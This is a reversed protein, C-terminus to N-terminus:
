TTPLFLATGGVSINTTTGSETCNMNLVVSAGSSVTLLLNGVGVTSTTDNGINILGGVLTYGSGTLTLSTIAGNATAGNFNLLVKGNSPATFSITSTIGTNTGSTSASASFAKFLQGLNVADGSATATAVVVPDNFANAGIWTNAAALQGLAGMQGATVDSYAYDGTSWALATTSEKGRQVTLTAGTIATAYVIEFISRTAQDALIIVMSQGSPISPPLGTTSALTITTAGSTVNAALTTNIFNDFNFITM